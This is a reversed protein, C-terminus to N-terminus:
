KGSYFDLTGCFISFAMKNQYADNQLLAAEQSNSLFGCEVLVAPSKAHYLIYLNGGAPKIERDNGPQLLSTARAQIFQALIKSSDNNASYFVQTGSFQSKQFKNQHISLFIAKPNKELIKFRNHIDSVKKERISNSGDDHISRDDERTMIVKYGSSEFFDKLKLSIALNIGKEVVGGSGVAGGDVGGHGPDIIVTKEYESNSNDAALANQLRGVTFFVVVILVCIGAMICFIGALLFSHKVPTKIVRFDVFVV